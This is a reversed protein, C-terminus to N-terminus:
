HPEPPRFDAAELYHALVTNHDNADVFRDPDEYLRARTADDMSDDLDVGSVVPYAILGTVARLIKAHDTAKDIDEKEITFSAEIALYFAPTDEDNSGLERIEAVVDPNQFTRWARDRLNLAEVAELNDELLNLLARRPVNRAKVRKLGHFDSFSRAIEVSAGSTARQAYNGRYSSQARVERRFSKGLGDIDRRVAVFQEDIADFRKDVEDFRKDMGDMRKDMNDMRAMSEKHNRDIRKDMNDLRENTAEAHQLLADTAVVLNEVVIALTNLREPMELLDKTLLEQRAARAFEENERLARLFDETTEIRIAM